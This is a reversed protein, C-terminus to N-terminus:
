LQQQCATQGAPDSENSCKALALLYDSRAGVQCSQLAGVSSMQCANGQGLATSAALSFAFTPVALLTRTKMRCVEEPRNAQFARPTGTESAGLKAVSSSRLMFGLIQKRRFRWQHWEPACASLEIAGIPPQPSRPLLTRHLACSLRFRMAEVRSSSRASVAGNM